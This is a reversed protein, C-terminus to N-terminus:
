WPRDAPGTQTFPLMRDLHIHVKAESHPVSAVVRYDAWGKPYACQGANLFKLVVPTDAAGQLSFHFWQAFESANDAPIHLQINRPDELSIVDIAGSDFATSIHLATM